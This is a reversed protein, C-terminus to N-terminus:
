QARREEEAKEEAIINHLKQIDRNLNRFNDDVIAGLRKVPFEMMHRIAIEPDGGRSLIGMLADLSHRIKRLDAAATIGITVSRADLDEKLLRKYKASLPKDVPKKNPKPAPKQPTAPQSKSLNKTAM